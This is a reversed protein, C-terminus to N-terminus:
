ESEDDKLLVCIDQEFPDIMFCRKVAAIANEDFVTGQKLLLVGTGSFLDHQLQMGAELGKPSVKKELINTSIDLYSYVELAGEELVMRLGPDLSKGWEPELEQLASACADSEPVQSLKRELM